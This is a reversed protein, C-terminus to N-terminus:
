VKGDKETPDQNKLNTNITKLTKSHKKLQRSDIDRFAKKTIEESAGDALLLLKRGSESLTIKKSRKDKTDATRFLYGRKELLDAMRTVSATDKLLVDSAETLSYNQNKFFVRLLQLQEFTLGPCTIRLKVQVARRYTFLVEETLHLFKFNRNKM